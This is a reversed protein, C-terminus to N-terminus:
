LLIRQCLNAINFFINLIKVLKLKTYYLITHQSRSKSIYSYYMKCHMQSICKLFVFLKTRLLTSYQSLFKCFHLITDLDAFRWCLLPFYGTSCCMPCAPCLPVSPKTQEPRQWPNKLNIQILNGLNHLICLLLLKYFDSYQM